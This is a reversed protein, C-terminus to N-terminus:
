NFVFLSRALISKENSKKAIEIFQEGSFIAFTDQELREWDEPNKLDKKYLPKGTKLTRIASSKVQIIQFAKKILEQAPTILSELPKSDGLKYEHIAQKLDYLNISTEENFLGAQIRRLETMHAGQIQEGLDHILKRIYTGGQVKTIFLIDKEDQELLEFTQIERQREQRKVASKKPPLQTIKGIFEKNILEQLEKIDQEKHTHMIGIYTKDSGLFFGTLKCARNLAIPLVGSVNPDLTGFHSTKRLKLQNKIYHSVSFSTPGASKDINLIGFELLKQINTQNPKM